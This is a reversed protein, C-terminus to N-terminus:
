DPKSLTSRIQNKLRFLIAEIGRLRLASVVEELGKGYFFDNPTSLIEEASRGDLGALLIGAFARVTPAEPPVDFFLRVSGNEMRTTLSFPTQCEPVKDWGQSQQAIEPPLPPVGRAFDLLAEVRFNLPSQQILDM